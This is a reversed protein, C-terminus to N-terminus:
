RLSSGDLLYDPGLPDWSKSTLRHSVYNLDDHSRSGAIAPRPGGRAAELLRQRTASVFRVDLCEGIQFTEQFPRRGALGREGV